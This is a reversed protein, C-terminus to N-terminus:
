FFVFCVFRNMRKSLFMFRTICMCDLSMCVITAPGCFAIDALLIMFNYMLHARINFSPEPKAAETSNTLRLQRNYKWISWSENLQKYFPIARYISLTVLLWPISMFILDFWFLCFHQFIMFRIEMMRDENWDNTDYLAYLIEVSHYGSMLCILFMPLFVIDVVAMLTHKFIDQRWQWNYGMKMESWVNNAETNHRKIDQYLPVIRILSVVSILVCVICLWDVFALVVSILCGYRWIGYDDKLYDEYFIGFSRAFPYLRTFPCLIASLLGIIFM